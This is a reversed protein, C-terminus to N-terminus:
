LNAKKREYRDRWYQQRIRQKIKSDTKRKPRLVWEGRIKQSYFDEKDWQLVYYNQKPYPRPNNINWLEDITTLLTCATYMIIVVNGLIM